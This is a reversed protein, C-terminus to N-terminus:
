SLLLELKEVVSQMSDTPLREVFRAHRAQWDVSRVHDALVVGKTTLHPPIPVEFPYRKSRSTIPCVIMLGVKEQYQRPTLVLAPRMGAQEHGRQPSFQLFVLDGREPVYKKVM